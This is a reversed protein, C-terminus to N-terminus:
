ITNIGIEIVEQEEAKVLIGKMETEGTTTEKTIITVELVDIIELTTVVAEEAEVMWAVLTVLDEIEVETTIEEGTAKVNIEVSIKEVIKVEESLDRIIVELLIMVVLNRLKKKDRLLKRHEKLIKRPKEELKIWKKRIIAGNKEM